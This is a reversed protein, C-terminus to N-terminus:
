DISLLHTRLNARKNKIGIKERINKRHFEITQSSLNLFEAIEKTTKGHKILNAVQIETPTLKLYRSSLRQSFPSIIDNLNSELINTYQKQKDDLRSKKLKELCPAVLERMNFLVKEELEDKDEERRKLLVRLATNVEELNRTKEELEKGREKLEKEIRKREAIEARLEENAQALEATRETIRGELEDRAKQLAAEAQKREFIKGVREAIANLLGREEKLFPGEDREPKEALYCVEFAGIRKGCWAIDSTLNWITEKFNKTTFTCDNLIVRACTIEPYQWAPPVLDVIEKLIEVLSINPRELRESIGYLCNLEKVREKLDNTRKRLTKEIVIRHSASADLEAIRQRMEAMENLLQEKTKNEDKM